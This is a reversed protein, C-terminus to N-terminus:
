KLLIIKKVASKGENLYHLFYVGSSIKDASLYFSHNGKQEVGDKLVDVVRGLMDILTIKTYGEKVVNYTIKTTSNFPNPYANLNFDIKETGTEPKVSSASQQIKIGNIIANGKVPKFYFNLLGSPADINNIVKELVKDSGAESYIDINKAIVQNNCYVDFIRAGASSNDPESMMLTVNYKGEPVRANYFTIGEIATKYVEPSQSGSFVKSISRVTGGVRGFLKSYDWVQDQLFGNTASGGANIMIPLASLNSVIQVKLAMKNAPTALDTIDRVLLNYTMDPNRGEVTLIVSRKDTQLKANKVTIGPLTYNIINEAGTLELPESFEVKIKDDYGIASVLYPADVDTDTVTDLKYGGQNPLTMCLILYGNKIVSNLPKFDSLNSGFTSTSASWKATNFGNFDEQWLFTFNNNVGPTYSYVKFWDYYAYLPLKKSDLTGAWDVSSPPWFNMMISQALNLTNIRKDSQRYIEFGDVSWAVYDPTWEIAHVHFAQHPNFKLTQRFPNGSQDPVFTNYSAENTYRGMIEIDIENYASSKVNYTFFTSTVGAAEASKMRIEFRGYLFSELTRVEGGWYAKQPFASTILLLSLFFYLKKM